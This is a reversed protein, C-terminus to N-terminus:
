EYIGTKKQDEGTDQNKICLTYETYLKSGHSLEKANDLHLYLSVFKGKGGKNGKPFVYLKRCM